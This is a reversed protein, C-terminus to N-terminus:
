FCTLRAGCSQSYVVVQESFSLSLCFSLPLSVPFCLATMEMDASAQSDAEEEM